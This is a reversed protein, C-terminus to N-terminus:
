YIFPFCVELSVSDLSNKIQGGQELYLLQIELLPVLLRQVLEQAASVTEVSEMSSMDMSNPPVSSNGPSQDISASSTSLSPNTMHVQGYFDRLPIRFSDTLNYQLLIAAHM